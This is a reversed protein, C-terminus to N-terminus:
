IVGVTVAGTGTGDIILTVGVAFVDEFIAQAGATTLSVYGILNSAAADGTAVCDHVKCFKGSEAAVVNVCVAVAPTAKAVKSATVGRNGTSDFGRRVVATGTDADEFAFLGPSVALGASSADIPTIAGGEVGCIIVRDDAM